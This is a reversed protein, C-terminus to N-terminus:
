TTCSKNKVLRSYQSSLLSTYHATHMKSSARCGQLTSRTSTSTSKSRTGMREFAPSSLRFHTLAPISLERGLHAVSAQSGADALGQVYSPGSPRILSNRMLSCLAFSKAM